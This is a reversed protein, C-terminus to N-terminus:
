PNSTPKASANCLDWGLQRRIEEMSPPTRSESQQNHSSRPVETAPQKFQEM